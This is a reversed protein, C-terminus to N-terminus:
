WGIPWFGMSDVLSLQEPTINLYAIIEEKVRDQRYNTKLRYFHNGNKSTIYRWKGLYALDTLDPKEPLNKLTITIEPRVNDRDPQVLDLRKAIKYANTSYYIIAAVSALLGPILTVATNFTFIMSVVSAIFVLISILFCRNDLRKLYTAEVDNTENIVALENADAGEVYSYMIRYAPLALTKVVTKKIMKDPEPMTGAEFIEKQLATNQWAENKSFSYVGLHIDDLFYGNNKERNLFALESVSGKFYLRFKKM